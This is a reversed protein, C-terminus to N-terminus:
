EGAEQIMQNFMDITQSKFETNGVDTIEGTTSLYTFFQRPIATILDRWKKVYDVGYKFSKDNKGKLAPIKDTRVFIIPIVGLRAGQRCVQLFRPNALLEESVTQFMVIRYEMPISDRSILLKNYEEINDAIRSIIESRIRMDNHISEILDDQADETCIVSIINSLEDYRFIDYSNGANEFDVIDIRLSNIMMNTFYQIIMMHIFPEVVQSNDGTYMVLTTDGNYNLSIVRERDDFGLFFSKLLLQSTGVGKLDILDSEIKDRTEAKATKLSMLQTEMQRHNLSLNQISTDLESIRNRAEAVRASYQEEVRRLISDEDVMSVVRDAIDDLEWQLQKQKSEIETALKKFENESEEMAKSRLRSCEAELASQRKRTLFKLVLFPYLSNNIARMNKQQLSVGKGMVFCYPLVIVVPWIAIVGLLIGSKIGLGVLKKTSSTKSVRPERRFINLLKFKSQKVPEEQKVVESESESPDGPSFLLKAAKELIPINKPLESLTLSNEVRNNLSRLMGDSPEISTVSEQVTNLLTNSYGAQFEPELDAILRLSHNLIEYSEALVSTFDFDSLEQIRNKYKQQEEAYLAKQQQLSNRIPTELKTQEESIITRRLEMHTQNKDDQLKKFKSEADQRQLRLNNQEQEFKGLSASCNDLSDLIEQYEQLIM